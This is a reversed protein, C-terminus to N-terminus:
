TFHTVTVLELSGSSHQVSIVMKLATFYTLLYTSPLKTGEM